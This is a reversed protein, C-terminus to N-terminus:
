CTAPHSPAAEIKMYVMLTNEYGVLPSDWLAECLADITVINGRCEVAKEALCIGQGYPREGARGAPGIETGM